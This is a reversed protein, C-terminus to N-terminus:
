PCGLGAARCECTYVHTYASVEEDYHSTNGGRFCKTNILTRAQACDSWRQRRTALEACDSTSRCSYAGHCYLDVAAQLAQHEAYTCDGPPSM